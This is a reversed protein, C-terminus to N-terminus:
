EGLQQLTAHLVFYNENFMRTSRCSVNMSRMTVQRGSADIPALDAFDYDGYVDHFHVDSLIAIKNSSQAAANDSDSSNCGPLLTAAGLSATCASTIKIFNRRSLKM